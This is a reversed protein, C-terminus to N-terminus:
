RHATTRHGPLVLMSNGDNEPLPLCINKTPCNCFLPFSVPFRNDSPAHPGPLRYYQKKISSLHQIYSYQRPLWYMRRTAPSHPHEEPPYPIIQKQLPLLDKPQLVAHPISLLRNGSHRGNQGNTPLGAM